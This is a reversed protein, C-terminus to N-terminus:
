DHQQTSAESSEDDERRADGGSAASARKKAAADLVLRYVNALATRETAPSADPRQTYRIRLGSSTM